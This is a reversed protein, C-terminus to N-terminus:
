VRGAGSNLHSASVILGSSLEEPVAGDLGGEVIDDASLGLLNEAAKEDCLVEVTRLKRSM